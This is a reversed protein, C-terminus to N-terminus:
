ESQLIEGSQEAEEAMSRSIAGPIVKKVGKRVLRIKTVTKTAKEGIDTKELREEYLVYVTDGATIGGINGVQQLKVDKAIPLLIEEESSFGSASTHRQYVIAIKDKGVWTVEGQLEATKPALAAEDQQAFVCGGSAAMVMMATVIGALVAKERTKM